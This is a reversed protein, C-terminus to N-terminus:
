VKFKGRLGDWYNRADLIFQARDEPNMIRQAYDSAVMNSKTRNEVDHLIQLNERDNYIELQEVLPLDYFAPNQKVVESFSVRHDIDFDEPDTSIFGNIDEWKGSVVETGAENWVVPALSQEALMYERTNLGTDGVETWFMAERLDAYSSFILVEAIESADIFDGIIPLEVLWESWSV